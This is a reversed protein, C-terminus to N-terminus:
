WVLLDAWDPVNIQETFRVFGIRQATLTAIKQPPARGEQPWCLLEWPTESACYM